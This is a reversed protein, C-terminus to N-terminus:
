KRPFFKRYPLFLGALAVFIFGFDLQWLDGGTSLGNVLQVVLLVPIIWCTYWAWKEGRRYPAAAIGMLLVGTALMFNGLQRSIGGVYGLIGPVRSAIEQLTLGTTTEPSPPNPPIGMLGISSGLAALLGFVFFVVWAHREYLREARLPTM